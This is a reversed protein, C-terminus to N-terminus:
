GSKKFYGKMEKSNSFRQFSEYQKKTLYLQKPVNPDVTIGLKEAIMKLPLASEVKIDISVEVLGSATEKATTVIEQKNIPIGYGYWASGKELKSNLDKIFYANSSKQEATLGQSEGLIKNLPPIIQQTVWTSTARANGGPVTCVLAECFKPSEPAAPKATAPAPTVTPTPASPTDAPQGSGPVPVVEAKVPEPAPPGMPTTDQQQAPEVGPLDAIEDPKILVPFKIEIETPGDDVEIVPPHNEEVVEALLPREDPVPVVEAPPNVIQAQPTSEPKFPAPAPVSVPVIESVTSKKGSLRHLIENFIDNYSLSKTAEDAIGFQLDPVAGSESLFALMGAGASIKNGMENLIIDTVRSPIGLKVSQTGATKGERAIAVSVEPALAGGIADGAKKALPNTTDSLIDKSVDGVRSFYHDATSKKFQDENNLNNFFRMYRPDTGKDACEKEYEDLMAKYKAKSPDAALDAKLEKFVQKDAEQVVGLVSNGLNERTQMNTPQQKMFFTVTEPITGKPLSTAAKKFAEQFKGLGPDISMLTSSLAAGNGNGLINDFLFNNLSKEAYSAGPANGFFQKIHTNIDLRLTDTGVMQARMLEFKETPLKSGVYEKFGRELLTKPDPVMDFLKKRDINLVVANDKIEGRAKLMGLEKTKPEWVLRENEDYKGESFSYMVKDGDFSITRRPDNQRTGGYVLNFGPSDKMGVSVISPKFNEVYLSSASDKHGDYSMMLVDFSVKEPDKHTMTFANAVVKNDFAGEVYRRSGDGFEASYAPLSKVKTRMQGISALQKQLEQVQSAKDEIGVDKSKQLKKIADKVASEEKKLVSEVSGSGKAMQKLLADAAEQQKGAPVSKLYLKLADSKILDWDKQAESVTYTVPVGASLMNLLPKTGDFGLSVKVGDYGGSLTTVFDDKQTNLSVQGTIIFPDGKGTNLVAKPGEQYGGEGEGVWVKLSSPDRSIRTEVDRLQRLLDTTSQGKAELAKIDQQIRDRNSLLVNLGSADNLSVDTLYGKHEGTMRFNGGFLTGENLTRGDVHGTPGLELTLPKDDGPKYFLVSYRAPTKSSGSISVSGETARVFVETKEGKQTLPVKWTQGQRGTLVLDNGQKDVSTLTLADAILTTGDFFELFLPAGKDIYPKVSAGEPVDFNLTKEKEAPDPSVITLKRKGNETTVVLKTGPAYPKSLDVSSCKEGACLKVVYKGPTGEVKPLVGEQIVAYDLGNVGKLFNGGVDALMGFKGIFKFALDQVKGTALNVTALVKQLGSSPKDGTIIKGVLADFDTQSLGNIAEVLEGKAGDTTATEFASLPNDSMLTQKSEAVPDVVEENNGASPDVFPSDSDPQALAVASLMIVFLIALSAKM